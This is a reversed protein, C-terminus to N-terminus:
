GAGAPPDTPASPKRWSAPYDAADAVVRGADIVWGQKRRALDASDVLARGLAVLDGSRSVLAVSQGSSFPRLVRDIGGGALDAGHAVAAAASDRLVVQPFEQWVERMPHLLALLPDPAGAKARVVADALVAVPVSQAEVFPGTGTRRLEELHGGVGLADGLDVALTRVYTGSDGVVDLLLKTGNREILDLRHITRIRRERKVASRVPPTQFVPGRFEALAVQVAADSVEGHLVAVGIYRKPFQLVLPLLKLAPGVGIWLIGSVNPDLTGAHGARELGLLDRVWATVQHSTPGRPKDILLFAGEAIRATVAPPLPEAAPATETV